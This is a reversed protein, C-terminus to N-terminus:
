LAGGCHPCTAGARETAPGPVEAFTSDAGSDPDPTDARLPEPAREANARAAENLLRTPNNQHSCKPWSYGLLKLRDGVETFEVEIPEPCDQWEAYTHGDIVTSFTVMQYGEQPGSARVMTQVEVTGHPTHLAGVRGDNRTDLKVLYGTTGDQKWDTRHRKM